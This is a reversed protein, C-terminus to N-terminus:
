FLLFPPNKPACWRRGHEVVNYIHIAAPDRFIIIEKLTCTTTPAPPAVPPKVEEKEKEDSPDAETVGVKKDKKKKKDKAKELPSFPSPCMLTPCRNGYVCACAHKTWLIHFFHCDVDGRHARVWLGKVDGFLSFVACDGYISLAGVKKLRRRQGDRVEM